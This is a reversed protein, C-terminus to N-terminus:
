LTDGIRVLECLLRGTDAIDACDVMEVPTHMFRQPLSVVGARVGGRSVAIEDANTGTGRGSMVEVQCPIDKERALALLRDSLAKDLAAHYGIMPGKSLEGCKERDADPTYAFSVDVAVALDPHLNFAAIAAGQGGVEERGTFQVALNVPLEEGKLLALAELICACGSRDDLAKSSIRGNLLETFEGDITVRDGPSVLAEAQEKTLGVDIFISNEDPLKDKDGKKQLHPPVSGILGPLEKKGHVTVSQAALLRFDIGGCKSFRLFGKEDVSTVIMGIEDIHADLLLTKAGARKSPIVGWVNGFADCAADPIYKQLLRRAAEAAGKEYGAVGTAGCLIKLNEKIREM